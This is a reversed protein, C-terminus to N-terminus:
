SQDKTTGVSIAGRLESLLRDYKEPTIWGNISYKPSAQCMARYVAGYPRPIAVDEAAHLMLETPEVPVLVYGEPPMAAVPSSKLARMAEIDQARSHMIDIEYDLMERNEYSAKDGAKDNFSEILDACEDIADNRVQVADVKAVTALAAQLEDVALLCQSATHRMGNENFTDSMTKLDDCHANIVAHLTDRM